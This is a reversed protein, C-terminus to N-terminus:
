QDRTSMHDQTYVGIASYIISQSVSYYLCSTLPQVSKNVSQNISQNIEQLCTIRQVCVELMTSQLSIIQSFLVLMIKTNTCKQQNISQNIEQLCTIRHVCVELMTSQLSIIQSFLVLMIKTNTCKQQSGSQDIEQLCTMRHTCLGRAIHIRSTMTLRRVIQLAKRNM